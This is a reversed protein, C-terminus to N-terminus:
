SPNCIAKITANLGVYPRLQDLNWSPKFMAFGIMQLCMYQDKMSATNINLNQHTKSGKPNLGYLENWGATASSSDGILTRAWATPTVFLTNGMIKGVPRLGWYAGSILKFGFWPDATVPYHPNSSLHEVVQVVVNDRVEANSVINIDLRYRSALVEDADVFDLGHKQL